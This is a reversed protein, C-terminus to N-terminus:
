LTSALHNIIEQKKYSSIASLLPLEQYTTPDCQFCTWRTRANSPISSAQVQHLRDRVLGPIGSPCPFSQQNNAGDSVTRATKQLRGLLPKM